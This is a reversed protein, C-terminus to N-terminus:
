PWFYELYRACKALASVYFKMVPKPLGPPFRLKHKAASRTWLRSPRHGARGIQSSKVEIKKLRKTPPEITWKGKKIDRLKLVQNDKDM